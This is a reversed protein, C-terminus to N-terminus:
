NFGPSVSAADQQWMMKFHDWSKSTGARGDVESPLCAKVKPGVQKDCFRSIKHHCITLSNNRLVRNIIENCKEINEKM